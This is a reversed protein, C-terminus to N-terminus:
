EGRQKEAAKKLTKNIIFNIIMIFAFLVLGITFLVQRHLGQSYAMESVIGTTLFKVSNFPLPINVSNGAVMTIAMAEGIARGVGLIIAAIIGSSAAPLTIKFITQVKTAGLALSTARYNAPVANLATQSVNIVTPLIMISLVIVASILNAGGTMQHDPLNAFVVMELKYMLPKIILVGLLSYVVSPIGALLEVAPKVVKVATPSAVESLFIATFVAIPVGILIALATGVTSTLIIYFIGFKPDSATPAWQTGFLIELLGVKSIAPTGAIIMYITIAFTAAIGTVACITFVVKMITEVPSQRIRNM